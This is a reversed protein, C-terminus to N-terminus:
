ILSAAEEDLDSKMPPKRIPKKNLNLRKFQELADLMALDPDSRVAVSWPKAANSHKAIAQWEVPTTTSDPGRNTLERDYKSVRVVLECCGLDALEKLSPGSM